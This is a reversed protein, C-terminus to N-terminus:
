EVRVRVRHVANNMYGKFNWVTEVREPQTNAASDWARAAVEYSGPTLHTRWEWLRWSWRGGDDLLDARAWTQGGDISVDVREVRRGGGVLAVGRVVIDGAPLTQDADPSGIISVVPVEGLMMAADWDAKRPSADSPFLRYARAQYYNDSPADQVVIRGLWKVSRAGIYGPVVVRLPFGHAPPLPDGNMAYALLVDGRLAKDLPISGGFPFSEGGKSIADLGEFAVHGGTGDGVGAAELVDALAVGSWVASSIAETDWIIEDPIPAVAEMERRRNGACQLFAPFERRPFATLMDLSLDLPTQIRGEVRLRYTLRDVVPIPAHCRVFFLDNPTIAHQALLEVPAGGNLPEGQRIIFASHKGEIM